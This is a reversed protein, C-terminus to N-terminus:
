RSGPDPWPAKASGPGVAKRSVHSESTRVADSSAGSDLVRQPRAPVFHVGRAAAPAAADLDRPLSRLAISVGVARGVRSLMRGHDVTRAPGPRRGSRRPRRPGPSRWCRGAGAPRRADPSPGARAAPRLLPGPGPGGPRAARASLDLKGVVGLARIEALRELAAVLAPWASGSTPGRRLGTWRREALRRGRTDHLLSRRGSRQRPIRATALLPRWFRSAARRDRVRGGAPGARDRGAAPGQAGVLAQARRWTSCRSPNSTLWHRGCTAGASGPRYPGDHNTSIVIVTTGISKWAHGPRTAGRRVVYRPWGAVRRHGTTEASAPWRGRGARRRTPWSPARDAARYRAARRVRNPQATWSPGPYSPWRDKDTLHLAAGIQDASPEGAYRGYRRQQEETLFDVPM